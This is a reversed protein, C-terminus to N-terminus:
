LKRELTRGMQDRVWPLTQDEQPHSGGQRTDFILNTFGQELSSTNYSAEHFHVM